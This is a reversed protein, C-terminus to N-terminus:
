FNIKLFDCSFVPPAFLLNPSAVAFIASLRTDKHCLTLFTRATIQHILGELANHHVIEAVGRNERERKFTSRAPCHSFHGGLHAEETAPKLVLSDNDKRVPSVGRKSGFHKKQRSSHWSPGTGERFGM